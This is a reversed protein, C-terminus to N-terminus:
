GDQGCCKKYKRGSGCPCPSNRPVKRKPPIAQIPISAQPKQLGASATSSEKELGLERRMAARPIRVSAEGDPDPMTRILMMVRQRGAETRCAQRPSWGGLAPLPTDIWDMYYKDMMEQLSAELEPTMEVPEPRSLREDMPRDKEAEDWRRTRVNRFVVGPLKELLQRGARFRKASNATLVLEDNVFEIRGLTVTQGPISSGRGAQKSWVLEDAQEDYDIDDRQMLRQRTQDPNALSFSAIHWLFEEGYTNCLRKRRQADRWRKAWRWLWGFMHANRRLSEPTFEMGCSQLFEVAELGMMTGLLPGAPEVFHFSGVAFVRAALFLNNEIDESMLRDRVTVTGGLLVDELDVTGAKPDHSDVRYLTPCADMRARLLIAESKPLDQRLMKEAHTQSNKSARYNLIGWATYAPIVGRQM